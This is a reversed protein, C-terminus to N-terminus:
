RRTPQVRASDPHTYIVVRGGDPLPITSDVQWGSREALVVLRRWNLDNPFPPTRGEIAVLIRPTGDITPTVYRRLGDDDTEFTRPAEISWRGTTETTGLQQTLWVVNTDFLARSGTITAVPWPRADQALERGLVDLRGDLRRAASAWAAAARRRTGIDDSNLGADNEYATPIYMEIPGVVYMRLPVEAPWVGPGTLPTSAWVALACLGVTLWGAVMGRRRAPSLAVAIVPVAVLGFFVELNPSWSIFLRTTVVAAAIRPMPHSSAPSRFTRVATAVVAAVLLSELPTSFWVGRNASTMLAAFGVCISAWLAILERNRDVFARPSARIRIAASCAGLVTVFVGIPLFLRVHDVLYSITDGFRGLIDSSGFFHAQGGYGSSLLYTSVYDWQSWWWPVAIVLAVAAALGLNRWAKPSRLDGVILAAIAMAPLFSVSMTRSITMAACAAGFAIVPWTREMRRSSLLAWAGLCMAAGVGNSFQDTRSSTILAPMALTACGAVIAPARGVLHRVCGAVGVASLLVLLPQIFIPTTASRGFVEILPVALLPVLPGNGTGLVAHLLQLPGETAARHFDLSTAIAGAEDVDLAGLLRAHDIWWWQYAVFACGILVVVLLPRDTIRRLVASPRDTWSTTRDQSTM